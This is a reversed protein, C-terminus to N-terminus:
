AFRGNITSTIAAKSASFGHAYAANRLGNLEMAVDATLRRLVDQDLGAAAEGGAAELM